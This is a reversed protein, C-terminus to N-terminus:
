MMLRYVYSIALHFRSDKIALDLLNTFQKKTYNLYTDHDKLLKKSIIQITEDLTINTFLSLTLSTM